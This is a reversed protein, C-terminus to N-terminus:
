TGLPVTLQKRIWPPRIASYGKHISAGAYGPEIVGADAFLRLLRKYKEWPLNVDLILHYHDPTTSPILAYDCGVDLNLVGKSPTARVRPALAAALYKAAAPHFAHRRALVLRRAGGFGYQRTVGYDLDLVIRHLDTNDRHQSTLLNADALPVDTDVFDHDKPMTYGDWNPDLLKRTRYYDFDVVAARLGTALRWFDDSM